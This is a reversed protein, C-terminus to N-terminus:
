IKQSKKLALQLFFRIRDHIISRVKASKYHYWTKQVISYYVMIIMGNNEIWIHWKADGKGTEVRHEALIFYFQAAFRM